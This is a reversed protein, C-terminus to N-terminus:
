GRRKGGASPKPQVRSRQVFRGLEGASLGPDTGEPEPQEAHPEATFFLEAVEAEGLSFPCAAHAAAAEVSDGSINWTRGGFTVPCGSAFGLKRCFSPLLRELTFLALPPLQALGAAAAACDAVAQAELCVFSLRQLDPGGYNDLMYGLFEGIDAPTGYPMDEKGQYRLPEPAAPGPGHGFAQMRGDHLLFLLDKM